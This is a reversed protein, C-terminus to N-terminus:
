FFFILSLLCKGSDHIAKAKTKDARHWPPVPYQRSPLVDQKKKANSVVLGWHSRALRSSISSFGCAFVLKIEALHHTSNKIVSNACVFFTFRSLLTCVWLSNDYVRNLRNKQSKTWPTRYSCFDSSGARCLHEKGKYHERESFPGTGLILPLFNWIM